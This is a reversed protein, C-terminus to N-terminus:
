TRRRGDAEMRQEGASGGDAPRRSPWIWALSILAAAAALAALVAARRGSVTRFVLGFAWDWKTEKGDVWLAGEAYRNKRNQHVAAEGRKWDETRVSAAYRGPRYARDFLVTWYRNEGIRAADGRKEELLAGNEDELTLVLTGEPTEPGVAMLLSLGRLETEDSVLIQRERAQATLPLGVPAFGNRVVRRSTGYGEGAPVAFALVACVAAACVSWVARTRRSVGPM